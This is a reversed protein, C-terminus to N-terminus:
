RKRRKKKRAPKPVSEERDEVPKVRVVEVKEGGELFLVMLLATVPVMQFALPVPAISFVRIVLALLSAVVGCAVVAKVLRSIVSEGQLLWSGLLAVVLLAM